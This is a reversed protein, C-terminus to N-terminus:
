LTPRDRKRLFVIAVAAILGGAAALGIWSGFQPIALSFQVDITQFPEGDALTSNTAQDGGFTATVEITDGADWTNPAITVTYFGDGDSFASDVFTQLHTTNNVVTVTVSAGPLPDGGSDYVIGSVAKPGINAAVAQESATMSLAVITILAMSVLAVSRAMRRYAMM